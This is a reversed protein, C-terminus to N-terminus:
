RGTEAFHGTGINWPKEKSMPNIRLDAGASEVFSIYPIGNDRAIEICRGWKKSAYHTLAGALVTPDNGFIVCEVGSIVGIGAVCGGGIAYDSDYAALPSIELFPTDPDLVNFIRERISMKGKKALREHHHSGGGLEAEDLLQDIDNLKSIMESTNIEFQDNQKDLKSVIQRKIKKIEM